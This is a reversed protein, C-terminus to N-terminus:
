QKALPESEVVQPMREATQKDGPLLRVNARRLVNQPMGIGRRRNLKVRLRRHRLSDRRLFREQARNQFLRRSSYSNSRYPSPCPM